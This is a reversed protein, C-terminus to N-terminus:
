TSVISTIRMMQRASINWGAAELLSRTGFSSCNYKEEKSKRRKIRKTWRLLKKGHITSVKSWSSCVKTCSRLIKSKMWTCWSSKANRMLKGSEKLAKWLRLTLGRLGSSWIVALTLISRLNLFWKLKLGTSHEEEQSLRLSGALNLSLGRLIMRSCYTINIVIWQLTLNIKRWNSLQASKVFSSLWSKRVFVRAISLNLSNILSRKRMSISGLWIPRKSTCESNTMKLCGTNLNSPTKVSCILRSLYSNILKVLKKLRLKNRLFLSMLNPLWRPSGPRKKNSSTSERDLISLRPEVPRFYSRRSNVSRKGEKRQTKPTSM